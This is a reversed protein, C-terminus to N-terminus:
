CSSCRTKKFLKSNILLIDIYYKGHKIFTSWNIKSRKETQRNFKMLTRKSYWFLLLFRFYYLIYCKQHIQSLVSTISSFSFLIINDSKRSSDHISLYQLYKLIFSKSEVNIVKNRKSINPKQLQNWLCKKWWLESTIYTETFFKYTRLYLTFNNQKSLLSGTKENWEFQKKQYKM